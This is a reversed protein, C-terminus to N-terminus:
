GTVTVRVIGPPVGAAALSGTTPDVVDLVLLYEGPAAPAILPFAVDASSRPALGAPLVASVSAGGPATPNAGLGGLDVWRAVLTARRAPEWEAASSGHAQAPAGWPRRGLNTVRVNLTFPTGARATATPATGYTATLPGTVRVVLAPILAQTAADYAVGDPQHVTAVLRYLGPTSPVTVPVSIGGTPLRVAKVPAV